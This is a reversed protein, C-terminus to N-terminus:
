FKLFWRRRYLFYVFTFIVLDFAIAFLLSANKPSAWPAFLSDYILKHLSVTDIKILGLVRALLGAAIYAAIANLGYIELPKAWARYGKADCIWYCAAFLVTSIGAMLVAYSGTWLSKNIPQWASLMLGALMLGNGSLFMRAARDGHNTSRRLLHGTLIGFLTTAVAPITSIIGEPDWTKSHSWMHGALVAGDVRRAFNTEASYDNGMLLWYGALCLVTAIIQGRMSTYLFILAAVLYCVAIRQLVGPIRLHALDYLPFGNLLLGVGFILAARRLAHLMLKIKGDGREVRKAMSLTMAVGVIWLFSPFITDTYTWGHWSAHELQSYSDEGGANNVIMMGGITLGRFVDLSLLREASPGHQAM